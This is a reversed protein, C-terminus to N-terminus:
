ICDYNMFQYAIWRDSSNNAIYVSESDTCFCLSHGPQIITLSSHSAIMIATALLQSVLHFNPIRMVFECVVSVLGAYIAVSRFTCHTNTHGTRCIQLWITNAHRIKYKITSYTWYQVQICDTGPIECVKIIFRFKFLLISLLSFTLCTGSDLQNNIERCYWYM